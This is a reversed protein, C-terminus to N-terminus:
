GAVIHRTFQNQVNVVTQLRMFMGRLLARDQETGVLKTSLIPYPIGVGSLTHQRPQTPVMMAGCAGCAVGNVHIHSRLGSALEATMDVVLRDKGCRWCLYPLDGVAYDFQSALNTCVGLATPMSPTAMSPSYPNVILTVQLQPALVIGGSIRIFPKLLLKPNDKGGEFMMTAGYRSALTMTPLGMFEDEVYPMPLFLDREKGESPLTFAIFRDAEDALVPFNITISHIFNKAM